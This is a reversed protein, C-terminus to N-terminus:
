FWPEHFHLGASSSLKTKSVNFLLYQVERQNVKFEYHVKLADIKNFIKDVARAIVGEQTDSTPTITSRSTGMTYTKGSGTQGYALVTVNYGSRLFFWIMKKAKSISAIQLGM